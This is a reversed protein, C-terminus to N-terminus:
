PMMSELPCIHPVLPELINELKVLRDHSHIGFKRDLEAGARSVANGPEACGREKLTGRAVRLKTAM